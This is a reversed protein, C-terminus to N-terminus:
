SELTIDEVTTDLLMFICGDFLAISWYYDTTGDEKNLVYYNDVDPDVETYEIKLTKLDNELREDYPYFGLNNPIYGRKQM